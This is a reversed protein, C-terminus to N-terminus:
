LLCVVKKYQYQLIIISINWTIDPASSLSQAEAKTIHFIIKNGEVKYNNPGLKVSGFFIPTKDILKFSHGMDVTITTNNLMLSPGTGYGQINVSFEHPKLFWSYQTTTVTSATSAGINDVTVGIEAEGSNTAASLGHSYDGYREDTIQSIHNNAVDEDTYSNPPTLIFGKLKGNNDIVGDSLLQGNKLADSMKKQDSESYSGTLDGFTITRSIVPTGSGKLPATIYSSGDSFNSGDYGKEVYTFNLSPVTKGENMLTQLESATYKVGIGNMNGAVIDEMIQAKQAPTGSKLINVANDDLHCYVQGNNILNVGQPANADKVVIQGNTILSGTYVNYKGPVGTTMTSGFSVLNDNYGMDNSQTSYSTQSTQTMSFHEGFNRQKLIVQGGYYNMKTAESSNINSSSSELEEKVPTVTIPVRLQNDTNTTIKFLNKSTNLLNASVTYTGNSNKILGPINLPTITIEKPDPNNINFTVTKVNQNKPSYVGPSYPTVQNNINISMYHTNKDSSDPVLSPTAIVNDTYQMTEKIPNVKIPVQITKGSPTTLNLTINPLVKANWDAENLQFSATIVFTSTSNLNKLKGLQVQISQQLQALAAKEQPTENKIGMYSVIPNASLSASSVPYLQGTRSRLSVSIQYNVITGSTAIDGTSPVNNEPQYSTNDTNSGTSIKSMKVNTVDIQLDKSYDISSGNSISNTGTNIATFNATHTINPLTKGGTIKNIFDPNSKNELMVNNQTKVTHQTMLTVTGVMASMALITQIKKKVM